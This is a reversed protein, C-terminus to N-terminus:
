KQVEFKNDTNPFVDVIELIKRAIQEAGKAESKIKDMCSRAQKLLYRTESFGNLDYLYKAAGRRIVWEDHKALESLIPHLFNRFTRIPKLYPVLPFFEDWIHVNDEDSEITLHLIKVDRYDMNNYFLSGIIVIEGAWKNFTRCETKCSSLVVIKKGEM